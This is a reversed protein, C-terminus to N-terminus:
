EEREVLSPAGSEFTPLPFKYRGAGIEIKDRVLRLVHWFGNWSGFCFDQSGNLSFEELFEVIEAADRLADQKSGHRLALPLSEPTVGEVTCLVRSAGEAAHQTNSM